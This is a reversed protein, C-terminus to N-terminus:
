ATMRVIENTRLAARKARKRMDYERYGVVAAMLAVIAALIGTLSVAVGISRVSASYENATDPLSDIETESLLPLPAYTQQNMASLTTPTGTVTAVHSKPMYGYSKGSSGNSGGSSGNSSSGGPTNTDPNQDTQFDQNGTTVSPNISGSSFSGYLPMDNQNSTIAPTPANTDDFASAAPMDDTAAPAVGSSGIVDAGSQIASQIGVPTQNLSAVSSASVVSTTKAPEVSSAPMATVVGFNYDAHAALPLLVVAALAIFKM